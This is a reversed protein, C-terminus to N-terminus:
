FQITIRNGALIENIAEIDAASFDFTLWTPLDGGYAESDWQWHLYSIPSSAACPEYFRVGFLMILRLLDANNRLSAFVSFVADEDTGCGNMANQLASCFNELTTDSLTPYIGGRKLNELEDAAAKGAKNAKSVDAAKKISRYILYTGGVALIVAGATMINKALPPSSSYIKQAQNM